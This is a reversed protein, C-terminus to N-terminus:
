LGQRRTNAREKETHKSYRIKQESLGASTAGGGGTLRNKHEPALSGGQRRPRTNIIYSRGEVQFFFFDCFRSFCFAGRLLLLREDRGIQQLDVLERLLYRKATRYLARFTPYCVNYRQKNVCSLGSQITTQPTNHTRTERHASAWFINEGNNEGHLFM